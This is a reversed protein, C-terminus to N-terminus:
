NFSFWIGLAFNVAIMVTASVAFLWSCAKAGPFRAESLSVALLALAMQFPFNLFAMKFGTSGIHDVPRAFMGDYRQGMGYIGTVAYVAAWLWWIQAMQKVKIV